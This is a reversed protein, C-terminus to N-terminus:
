FDASVLTVEDHGAPRALEYSHVEVTTTMGRRLLEISREVELMSADSQDCVRIRLLLASLDYGRNFVQIALPETGLMPQDGWASEWRYFLDASEGCPFFASPVLLARPDPVRGPELNEKATPLALGCTGCYRAVPSATSRCRPCRSFADTKVNAEEMNGRDLSEADEKM